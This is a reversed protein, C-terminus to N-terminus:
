GANKKFSDKSPSPHFSPSLIVVAMGRERARQPRLQDALPRSAEVSEDLLRALQHALSCLFSSQRQKGLTKQGVLELYSYLLRRLLCGKVTMMVEMWRSCM